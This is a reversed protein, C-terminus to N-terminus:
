LNAVGSSLVASRAAAAAPVWHQFLECTNCLESSSRAPCPLAPCPVPSASIKPSPAETSPTSVLCLSPCRLKGVKCSECSQTASECSRTFKQLKSYVKAVKLLSKCSQTFKQLKSYIKAVKLLSKCSQTFKQLKSYIKEVKLRVKAVKLLSKCSQTFKQLKSFVQM